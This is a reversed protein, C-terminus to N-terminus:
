GRSCGAAKRARGFVEEPFLVAQIEIGLQHRVWWSREKHLGVAAPRHGIETDVVAIEQNDIARDTWS